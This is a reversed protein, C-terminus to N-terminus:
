RSLTGDATIARFGSGSGVVAVPCTAHHLVAYSTSGLAGGPLRHHGHTGVVVLQANEAHELLGDAPRGRFRVTRVPVDPYRTRAKALQDDFQRRQAEAIEDWDVVATAPLWADALGEYTWALVALVDVGRVAAAALAFELANDSGPSGDVGVVVPGAEPVARGRMVVVPCHGHATLANAVSGLLLSRFGGLGRSGVVVLGADETEAVLEEGPQGTRLDTHVDIDPAADLAADRAASLWKRGQETLELAYLDEAPLLLPLQRVHVLRVDADRLAAEHAAWRSAQLASESGDVGVVIQETM